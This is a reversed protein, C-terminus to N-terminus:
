HSMRCMPHLDKMWYFATKLIEHGEKGKRRERVLLAKLNPERVRVYATYFIFSTCGSGEMPWLSAIGPSIPPAMNHTQLWLRCQLTRSNSPKQKILIASHEVEVLSLSKSYKSIQKNEGVRVTRGTLASQAKWFSHRLAPEAYDDSQTRKWKLNLNQWLRVWGIM